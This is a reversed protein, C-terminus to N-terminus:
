LSIRIKACISLHEIGRFLSELASAFAVRRRIPYRWLNWCNIRRYVTPFRVGNRLTAKWQSVLSYICSALPKICSAAAPRIPVVFYMKVKKLSFNLLANSHPYGYEFNENPSTYRRIYTRFNRKVAGSVRQRLVLNGVTYGVIYRGLHFNQICNDGLYTGRGSFAKDASYTSLMTSISSLGTMKSMTSPRSPPPPTQYESNM